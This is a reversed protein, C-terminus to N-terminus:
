NFLEGLLPKANDLALGAGAGLASAGGIYAAKHGLAGVLAKAAGKKGRLLYGLTKIVSPGPAKGRLAGVGGLIGGGAAMSAITRGNINYDEQGGTMGSVLGDLGFGIGGGAIAGGVGGLLINKLRRKQRDEASENPKEKSVYNGYLAGLGGGGLLGIITAANDGAFKGVQTLFDGEGETEGASTQM